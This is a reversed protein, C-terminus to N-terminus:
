KKKFGAPCKPKIASVKKVTKGKICTITTKKIALAARAEAEQKAKLDAAAKLEAEQKAKLEAAAKATAAEAEQKAKLEAAAKATAAEAEQKAKLEAAAKADADQKAKLEAAAKAAADQKAKLEAAAKAAAADSKEQATLLRVSFSTNCVPILSPFALAQASRYINTNTCKKLDFGVENGNKDRIGQINFGYYSGPWSPAKIEFEFTQEVFDATVTTLILGRGGGAFIGGSISGPSDAPAGFLVTPWSMLENKDDRIVVTVFASEGEILVPKSVSISVLVPSKNDTADLDKAYAGESQFNLLLLSLILLSVIKRM